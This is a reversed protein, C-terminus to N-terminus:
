EPKEKMAANVQSLLDSTQGTAPVEPTESTHESLTASVSVPAQNTILLQDFNIGGAAPATPTVPATSTNAQNKDDM